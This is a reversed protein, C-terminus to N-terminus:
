IQDSTDAAARMASLLKSVSLKMEHKALPLTVVLPMEDTYWSQWIKMDQLSYSKEMGGASQSTAKPPAPQPHSAVEDSYDDSGYLDMDVNDEQHVSAVASTSTGNPLAAVRPALAPPPVGYFSPTTLRRVLPFYKEDHDLGSFIAKSDLRNM